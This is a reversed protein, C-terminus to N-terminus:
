FRSELAPDFPRENGPAVVSGDPWVVRFGRGRLALKWTAHLKRSPKRADSFPLFTYGKAHRLSYRTLTGLVHEPTAHEVVMWRETGGGDPHNRQRQNVFQVDKNM